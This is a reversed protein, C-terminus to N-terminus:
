TPLKQFIVSYKPRRGDSILKCNLCEMPLHKEVESILTPLQIPYPIWSYGQEMEYEIVVLYGHPTLFEILRELTSMLEDSPIYHLVQSCLIGNLSNTRYPPSQLFSKIALDSFDATPSIDSKVVTLNKNQQSLLRSIMGDGTGVDTWIEPKGSLPIIELLPGLRKEPNARKWSM